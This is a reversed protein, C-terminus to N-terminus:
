SEPWLEISRDAADIIRAADVRTETPAIDHAPWECSIVLPGPSPLPEIFFSCVFRGPGGSASVFSMGLHHEDPAQNGAMTASVHRGDPYRISLQCPPTSPERQHPPAPMGEAWALPFQVALADDHAAFILQWEARTRYVRLEPLLVAVSDSQGLILELPVVAPLVGQDPSRSHAAIGATLKERPMAKAPIRIVRLEEDVARRAADVEAGALELVRVSDLEPSSVLGSLIHLPHIATHGLSIAAQLSAELARKADTTFPIQGETIPPGGPGVVAVVHERLRGVEEGTQSEVVTAASDRVHVVGLLMHGPEIRAHGLKRAEEQAYVVVQRADHTFREFVGDNQGIVYRGSLVEV